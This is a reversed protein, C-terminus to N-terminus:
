KKSRKEFEKLGSELFKIYNDVNLDYASPNVLLEGNTDVLVYYPQTNMNIKTIEFDSNQKGVTKKVKGDNKSVKWQNEPLESKDDVFLFTIIFKEKLMKLIQPNSWVKAEM